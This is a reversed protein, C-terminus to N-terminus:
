HGQFTLERREGAVDVVAVNGKLAVLMVRVRGGATTVSAEEGEAFTHGNIMALRRDQAGSIGNFVIGSVVPAPSSKPSTKVAFLRDSVPFFPDHGDQPKTPISFSSKPIPKDAAETKTQAETTTATKESPASVATITLAISLPFALLSIKM